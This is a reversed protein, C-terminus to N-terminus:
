WGVGLVFMYVRFLGGDDVERRLSPRGSVDTKARKKGSYAGSHLNLLRRLLRPSVFPEGFFGIHVKSIHVAM